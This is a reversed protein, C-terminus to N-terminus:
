LGKVATAVLLLALGVLEVWFAYAKVPDIFLFIVGLVGLVLAIVWIIFRPQNLKM